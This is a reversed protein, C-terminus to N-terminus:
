CGPKQIENSIAPGSGLILAGARHAFGTSRARPPYDCYVEVATHLSM